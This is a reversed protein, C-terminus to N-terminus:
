VGLNNCRQLVMECVPLPEGRLQLSALVDTNGSLGTVLIPCVVMPIVAAGAVMTTTVLAVPILVMSAVFLLQTLWWCADLLQMTDKLCPLRKCVDDRLFQM